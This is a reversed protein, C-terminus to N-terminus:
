EIILIVPDYVNATLSLTHLSGDRTFPVNEYSGDPLLRQISKVERHIVLPLAEIPDLSMDLVACLLQGDDLRAAKCLVEADEPYYVPLSDLSELIEVLQAKRSENLFGFAEKINYGFLSDGSFVVVTGGLKNEYSTVGPFLIDQHKGDRLHYVQSLWRTQHSLPILERINPLIKSSGSLLIEGSANKADAERKKVDVGLYEGFGRAIFNEAAAADLVVKGSLFTLLERDTFSLAAKEDFFCVGEGAPSFHMPLGLRDLVCASWGPRAMNALTLQYVPHTPVPIKCGLWTLRHNLSALENYFGSHSALKKRYAVGSKPEFAPLRTIWHKAGKAGELISFTFHCHLKAAPTSYRNQPCTDTEALLVDPKGSLAAIQTAARRMVSSFSRPDKACYNANNVRLTVPNGAGAMISAIEYGGEAADGCTCYSGPISPDVSDIGARIQKACDLLSDIQTKVFLEKYHAAQADEACLAEYLSERDFTVQALRNFAAMHLPCACGRQPRAMLRFDDDLMIHDPGAAAIRAAASRIYSRFNEDAPCCVEVRVTGDNFGVYKQFASPANLKWGHGISAQILAGSPIGMADLRAKYKEYTACFLDAKDITPDGEPTLTMSFLPMTAVGSRVQGAIDQCYQDIHDEDLPMITYNLM